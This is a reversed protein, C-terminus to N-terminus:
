MAYNAPWFFVKFVALCVWAIWFLTPQMPIASLILLYVMLLPAAFTLSRELGFRSTFKGALPLILLYAIYHLAYYIAIKSIPIGIKYFFVPEFITVLSASLWFLASFWYFERLERRPRVVFFKQWMHRWAVRAETSM